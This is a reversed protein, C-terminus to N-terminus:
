PAEDDQVSRVPLPENFTLTRYPFPIEINADDLVQKIAGVVESRSKREGLPTPDAWWTVEIDMSSNGFGSLFVEVEQNKAILECNEIAEKFIPLGAPRM